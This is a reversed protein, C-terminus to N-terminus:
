LHPFQTEPLFLSFPEMDVRLPVALFPIGSASDWLGIIDDNRHRSTDHLIMSM